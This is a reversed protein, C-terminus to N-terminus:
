HESNFHRPAFTAGPDSRGISGLEHAQHADAQRDFLEVFGQKVGHRPYRALVRDAARLRGQTAEAWALTGVYNGAM